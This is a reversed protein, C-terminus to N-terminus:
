WNWENYDPKINENVLHIKGDQGVFAIDSHLVTMKQTVEKPIKSYSNISTNDKEIEKKKM